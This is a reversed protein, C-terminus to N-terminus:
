GADRRDFYRKIDNFILAAAVIFLAVGISYLTGGVSAALGLGVLGLAGLVAISVFLFDSNDVSVPLLFGIERGDFQRKLRWAIVIGAIVFLAMGAGYTADDPAGSATFLGLIGAAALFLYGLWPVIMHWFEGAPIPVPDGTPHQVAVHHHLADDTM